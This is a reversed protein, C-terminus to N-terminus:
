LICFFLLFSFSPGLGDNRMRRPIIEIIGPATECEELDIKICTEVFLPNHQYYVEM